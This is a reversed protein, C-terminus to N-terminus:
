LIKHMDVENDEYANMLFEALSEVLLAFSAPQRALRLWSKINLADDVDKGGHLLDGRLFYIISLLALPDSKREDSLRAIAANDLFAYQESTRRDRIRGGVLFANKLGFNSVITRAELDTQRFYCRLFVNGEFVHTATECEEFICDYLRSSKTLLNSL